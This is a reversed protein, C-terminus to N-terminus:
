IKRWVLGKFRDIWVKSQQQLMVLEFDTGSSDYTAQLVSAYFKKWAQIDQDQVHLVKLLEIFYIDSIQMPVNLLSSVFELYKKWGIRISQVTNKRMSYLFLWVQLMSYIKKAFRHPMCYRYLLPCIGMLLICVYLFLFIVYPIEPYQESNSKILLLPLEDECSNEAHLYESTHEGTNESAVIELGPEILIAIDEGFTITKYKGKQVDFYTYEQLPLKLEGPETFQLIYEFARQVNFTNNVYRSKSNGPYVKVDEPLQLEPFDITEITGEGQILLTATIAKGVQATKESIRLSIEDLTGIYDVKKGSPAQPLAEVKFEVPNAYFLKQQPQPLWFSYASAQYNQIYYGQLAPISFMGASQPYVEVIYEQKVYDIDNIRETVGASNLTFSKGTKCGACSLQDHGIDAFQENKQHWLIIHVLVKQGVFYKKQPVHVKMIVLDSKKDKHVHGSGGVVKCTISNSTIGDCTYPGFTIEQEKDVVVVYDITTMQQSGSLTITHSKSTNGKQVKAHQFGPIFQPDKGSSVNQMTLRVVCPINKGINDLKEGNADLLQLTIKKGQGADLINAFLLFAIQFIFLRGIKVM